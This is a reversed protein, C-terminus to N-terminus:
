LVTYLLYYIIGAHQICIRASLQVKDYATVIPSDGM